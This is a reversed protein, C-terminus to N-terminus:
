NVGTPPHYAQRYENLDDGSPNAPCYATLWPLNVTPKDERHKFFFSCCSSAISFGDFSAFTVNILVKRSNKQHGIFFALAIYM